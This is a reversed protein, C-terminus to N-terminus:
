MWFKEPEFENFFRMSGPVNLTTLLATMDVVDASEKNYSILAVNALTQTDLQMNGAVPTSGNTNDYLWLASYGGYIGDQGNAGQKGTPITLSRCEGCGCGSEHAM